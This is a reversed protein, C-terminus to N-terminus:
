AAKRQYTKGSIKQAIFISAQEFTWKDSDKQGQQNLFRVQKPTALGMHARNMMLDIIASAHGRSKISDLDIANKELMSKQKDTPAQADCSTTDEWDATEIAHVSLCFDMADMTRASRKAKAKLEQQLKRERVVSAESAVGQLDLTAQGEWGGAKQIIETMDQAQQATSAILHAPRILNHKEHLWLFDLLLLNRKAPAIRTGRGVQQSYLARSKTPRLPVICDVSPCDYGEVLLQSNVLCDFEAREFAQLIERRDDSTGDVHRANVGEEILAEVMKKSTMILPVFVLTKRWAAEIRIAKAIERLYPLLADGLDHEDFDGKSTRVKTIDIELPVSKVVIKSLYGQNILDLLGIEFAVRNFYQGLNKKDGRDPTATVGVVAAHGDFHSLIRKHTDAIAHHCEDIVVLGFHDKPWMELRKGQMTQVSGIVVDCRLSASCEAKEVEAMIGTARHLKDQAQFILESRHALILTKKPLMRQALHSFMLTKGSGTPAVGLQKRFEDLGSLVSEVATLQYPRLSLM